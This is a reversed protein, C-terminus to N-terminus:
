LSSAELTPTAGNLAKQYQMLVGRYRYATKETVSRQFLGVKEYTALEGEPPKSLQDPKNSKTRPKIKPM